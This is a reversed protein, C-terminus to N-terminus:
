GGPPAVGESLAIGDPMPFPTSSIFLAPQRGFSSPAVGMTATCLLEVVPAGASISLGGDRFPVTCARGPGWSMHWEFHRWASRWISAMSCAVSQAPGHRRCAPSSYRVCAMQACSRKGYCCCAQISPSRAHSHLARRSYTSSASDRLVALLVWTFWPTASCQGRLLLDILHPALSAAEGHVGSALASAGRRLCRWSSALSRSAKRFRHRLDYSSRHGWTPSIAGRPALCRGSKLRRRPLSAVVLFAGMRVGGSHVQWRNPGIVNDGRPRGLDWIPAVFHATPMCTCVVGFLFGCAQASARSASASMGHAAAADVPSGSCSHLPLHRSSIAGCSESACPKRVRVACAQACAVHRRRYRVEKANAPHGRM